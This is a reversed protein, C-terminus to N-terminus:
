LQLKLGLTFSKPSSYTSPNDPDIAEKTAKWLFGLNAINGYLVIRKIGNKTSKFLNYSINIYQLRINDARQVNIDSSRYFRDRASFDIGSAYPYVFSPVTTKLEDGPVRWRKQYDIHGIGDDIFKTEQFAPRLFYYGLKYVINFSVNFGKWRIRNALSGFHTPNAPGMYVIQERYISGSAMMTYYDTSPHGNLYGQPNGHADLGAWRYAILAYLPKGVVPLMKNGDSSLLQTGDTAVPSDYKTTTNANYNYLIRTAWTFKKADIIKVEMDIDVGTTRLNAVNRILSNTLGFATYDYPTEGYLDVGRKQYYEVSGTIRQNPFSYTLAINYQRSKEWRLKPNNPQSVYASISNIDVNNSYTILPLATKSNDLNGSYGWTMRLKLEPLISQLSYFPEKSIEWGLGASWLPNWKDNSKVGFINSADKRFSGSLTYKGEFAYSINGYLSVFRNINTSGITPRNPVLLEYGYVYHKYSSLYDVPSSIVPNERYGYISNLITPLNETERIENGFIAAVSQQKWSKNFNGQIRFSQSKIGFDQLRIIGGIPIPYKNELTTAQLDTYSNILNRTYFSEIDSFRKEISSEKQYLYSANLQLYKAPKYNVSISAILQERNNKTKDHEWDTLPYYNWDLLQGNGTTNTYNINYNRGVALPRGNEDAFQQYYSNRVTIKDLDPKGTISKFDTYYGGITVSLNDFVKYVNNFRLNLKQNLADQSTVNKDFSGSLLWGINRSGGSISIYHQQTIAVSNFYKNYERRSDIQKLGNIRNTSDTVSIKGNKSKNFIDVAPTLPTYQTNIATNYYGNNFLIQEADIYDSVPMRPMSFLDVKQVMNITSGAEMEFKKDLQGKKSTIVIVGNAGGVGYISTAAADKLITISEVDNPNINDINGTFINDDLVILPSTSANITSLGRVSIPNPAGSANLKGSNFLVSSANGNLKQLINTSFQEDLIKKNIVSISGTSENPKLVQYGTHIVVEEGTTVKTVIKIDGLDTKDGVPIEITNFNIGSIVLIDNGNINSITFKGMEDTIIAYKSAKGKIEIRALVPRGKEDVIKGTIGILTIDSRGPVEPHVNRKIIIIKDGLSYTLPRGRLAIDLATTISVQKVEISIHRADNLDKSRSSYSFGTQRYIDKLIDELTADSRIISVTQSHGTASVNLFCLFLFSNILKMIRWFQLHGSLCNFLAHGAQKKQNGKHKTM